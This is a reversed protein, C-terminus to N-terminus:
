QRRALRTSKAAAAAQQYDAEAQDRCPQQTDPSLTLCRAVAVKRDGDAKAMAVDYSGTVKAEMVENPHSGTVKAASKVDKAAEIRAQAVERQAEQKATDVDQATAHPAAAQHCAAMLLVPVLFGFTNRIRM